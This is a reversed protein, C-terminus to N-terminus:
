VPSHRANGLRKSVSLFIDSPKVWLLQGVCCPITVVTIVVHNISSSEINPTIREQIYHCSKAQLRPEHTPANRQDPDRVCSVLYSSMCAKGDPSYRGPFETGSSIWLRCSPTQVM